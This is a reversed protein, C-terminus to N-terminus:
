RSQQSLETAPQANAFPAHRAARNALGRLRTCRAVGRGPPGRGACKPLSGFGHTGLLAMSRYVDAFPNEYPGGPM